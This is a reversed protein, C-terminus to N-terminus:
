RYIGQPVCVWKESHRLARVFRITLEKSWISSYWINAFSYISHFAIHRIIIVRPDLLKLTRVSEVETREMFSMRECEKAGRRRVM